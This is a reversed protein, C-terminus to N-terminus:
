IKSIIVHPLNDAKACFTEIAPQGNNDSVILLRHANDQIDRLDNAVVFACHNGVVSRYAAQILEADTSDVLLKFGILKTSPCIQHVTQILKPLPSLQISMNEKTRVKGTAPVTGYDSVAAALITVDPCEQTLIEKLLREYDSFSKYEIARYYPLLKRRQEMQEFKKLITSEDMTTLDLSLKFPTKSGAAHLFIVQHGQVLAELAIAAGFTGSSMNAIHRVRDIPIRTGGSTILIKKM